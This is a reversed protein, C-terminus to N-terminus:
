LDIFLKYNDVSNQNNNFYHRFQAVLQTIRKLPHFIYGEYLGQKLSMHM